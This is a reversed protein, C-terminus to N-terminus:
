EASAALSELLPENDASPSKRPRGRPRREVPPQAEEAIASTTTDPRARRPSRPLTIAELRASLSADAEAYVRAYSLARHVQQLLADQREQLRARADTFAAEAVAVEATAAQVAATADSLTQADVDGFRVSILDSSFLDLVTQVPPPITQM